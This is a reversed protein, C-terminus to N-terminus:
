QNLQDQLKDITAQLKIAKPDNPDGIQQLKDQLLTITQNINDIQQQTLPATTAGGNTAQANPNSISADESNNGNPSPNNQPTQHVEAEPGPPNSPSNSQALSVTCLGMLLVLPLTRLLVRM